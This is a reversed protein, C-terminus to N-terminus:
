VPIWLESKPKPTLVFTGNTPCEQARDDYYDTDDHKAELRFVVSGDCVDTVTWRVFVEEAHFTFYANAMKAGEVEADDAFMGGECEFTDGVSLDGSIPCNYICFLACPPWGEDDVNETEISIALKGDDIAYGGKTLLLTELGDQHNITLVNEGTAAASSENPSM